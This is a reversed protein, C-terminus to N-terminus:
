DADVWTKTRHDWEYGRERWQAPGWIQLAAECCVLGDLVVAWGERAAFVQHAYLTLSCSSDDVGFDRFAEGCLIEWADETRRGVIAARYHDCIRRIEQQPTEVLGTGGSPVWELETHPILAYHNDNSLHM